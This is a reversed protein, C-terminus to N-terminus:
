GPIAYFIKDTKGGKGSIQRSENARYVLIEQIKNEHVLSKRTKKKLQDFKSNEM